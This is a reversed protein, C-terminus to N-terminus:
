KTPRTAVAFLWFDNGSDLAMKGQCLIAVEKGLSEQAALKEKLKGRTIAISILDGEQLEEAEGSEASMGITPKTLRIVACEMPGSKESYATNTYTFFGEHVGVVYSGRSPAYYHPPATEEIKWGEDASCGLTELLNGVTLASDSESKVIENSM